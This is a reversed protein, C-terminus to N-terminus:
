SSTIITESHLILTPCAVLDCVFTAWRQLAERKEDAYDHLQYVGVIGGGTGSIHNLVAETERVPVRLRAMGTAATRRLDHFTWHEVAVAEGREKSAIKTMRAAIRAMAKHFGSISTAGSTTFVYRLRGEADAIRPVHDLINRVQPVLPVAHARANKTRQASLQWVDGVTEDYTMKAVENLRQATLLLIQGFAGWVGAEQQCAAWFWRVEDDSLVRNRSSEKAVPKVGTAPNAALVDREVAWNFFKNLYARVRNATVRRGSDGLRDLLEIVDRKSISTIERDGWLAVVHRDLERRVTAGSRLHSLHRKDFEGILTRLKNRNAIDPNLAVLKAAKKAAAPDHGHELKAVAAGADARAQAVSVVPWRGLTLKVTKGSHRYRLAWSKVGSPQVILYLGPFVGDPIELRRDPDPKAAEVSKATLAKAM